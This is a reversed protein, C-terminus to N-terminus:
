YCFTSFAQLIKWFYKYINVLSNQHPNMRQIAGSCMFRKLKESHLFLWFEMYNDFGCDHLYLMTKERFIISKKM